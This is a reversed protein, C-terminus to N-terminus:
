EPDIPNVKRNPEFEELDVAIEEQSGVWGEAQEPEDEKVPTYKPDKKPDNM